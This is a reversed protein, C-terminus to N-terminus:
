FVGLAVLTAGALYLGVPVVDLADFRGNSASGPALDLVVGGVVAVGGVGVLMWNPGTSPAPTETPGLVAAPPAADDTDTGSDPPPEVVPPTAQAAPAEVTVAATGGPDLDVEQASEAGGRRAVVRHHGPDAPAGVGLLARSFPRGDLLVEVGEADGELTVTLRGIRPEVTRLLTESATRTRDGAPAERIATRLQESAEVVQGLHELAVALNYRIAPSPRLALARRFRDAAEPWQQNDALARGESFLARAAATDSDSPQARAIAPITALAFYLGVTATWELRM